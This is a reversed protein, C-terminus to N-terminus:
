RDAEVDETTVRQRREIRDGAAQEDRALRFIDSSVEAVGDTAEHFEPTSVELHRKRRGRRKGVLALRMRAVNQEVKWLVHDHLDRLM